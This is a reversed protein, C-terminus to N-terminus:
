CLSLSTPGSALAMSPPQGFGMAEKLRNMFTNPAQQAQPMPVNPQMSGGGPLTMLAAQAQQQQQQWKNIDETSPGDYDLELGADKALKLTKKRDIPIGQQSLAIQTQFDKMAQQKQMERTAKFNNIFSAIGTIINNATSTPYPTPPPNVTGGWPGPVQPMPNM